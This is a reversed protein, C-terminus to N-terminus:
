VLNECQAVFERIKLRKRSCHIKPKQESHLLTNLNCQLLSSPLFLSFVAQHILIKKQKLLADPNRSKPRFDNRFTSTCTKEDATISRVLDLRMLFIVHFRTKIMRQPSIITFIIYFCPVKALLRWKPAKM